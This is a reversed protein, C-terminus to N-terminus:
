EIVQIIQAESLGSKLVYTGTIFQKAKLGSLPLLKVSNSIITKSTSYIVKENDSNDTIIIQNGEIKEIVGSFSAGTKNITQYMMGGMGFPATSKLSNSNNQLFVRSGMMTNFKGFGNDNGNFVFGSQQLMGKAYSEIEGVKKGVSMGFVFILLVVLLIIVLKLGRRASFKKSCCDSACDPGCQKNFSCRGMCGSEGCKECSPFVPETKKTEAKAM